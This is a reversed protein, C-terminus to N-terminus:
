VGTYSRVCRRMAFDRNPGLGYKARFALIGHAAREFVCKKKALDHVHAICAGQNKFVGYTVWGGNKCEGKTTPLPEADTITIDGSDVPIRTYGGTADAPCTSPPEFWLKFFLADPNDTVDILTGEGATLSGPGNEIGIVAHNGDVALCTVPGTTYTRPSLSITATGRPNEGSPGSHADFAYTYSGATGSGVVSDETPPSQATAPAAMVGMAGIVVLLSRLKV